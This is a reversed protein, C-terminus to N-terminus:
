NLLGIHPLAPDALHVHIIGIIVEIIDLEREVTSEPPFYKDHVENPFSTSCQHIRIHFGKQESERM